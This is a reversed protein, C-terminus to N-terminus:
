AQEQLQATLADISRGVDVAYDRAIAWHIATPHTPNNELLEACYKAADGQREADNAMCALRWGELEVRIDTHLSGSTLLLSLTEEGARLLKLTERDRKILGADCPAPWQKPTAKLLAPSLSSFYAIIASAWRIAFWRPKMSLAQNIQRIAGEINNSHLLSLAYLRKSEADPSIGIPPKEFEQIVTAWRELELLIALRVNWTELSQPENLIELAREHAGEQFAILGELGQLKKRAGEKAAQEVVAKALGPNQEVSLLFGAELRLVRFRAEPRLIKWGANGKMQVLQRFAEKTDGAKWLERIQEIERLAADSLSESLKELQQNIINATLDSFRTEGEEPKQSLRVNQAAVPAPAKEFRGHDLGFIALDLGDALFIDLFAAAACSALRHFDDNKFTDGLDSIGRIVLWQKEPYSSSKCARIFGGAEMESARIGQHISAFEEFVAPDRLLIDASALVSDHVYPHFTVNRAFEEEQGATPRIPPGFLCGFNTDFKTRDLRFAHYMQAVPPNLATIIPRPKEEGGEAVRVSFEAIAKPVVVDGIKVKGRWGAAIGVLILFSPDFDKILKTTATSASAQSADAACTIVFNLDRDMWRSYKKGPWYITGGRYLRNKGSVGLVDQVAHLEPGIVTLVGIDPQTATASVTTPLLDNSV